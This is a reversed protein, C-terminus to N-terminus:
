APAETLAGDRLRLVREGLRGPQLVDHTVFIFSLELEAHLELLTAEV